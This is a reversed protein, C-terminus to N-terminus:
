VRERESSLSTINLLKEDQIDFSVCSIQRITEHIEETGGIGLFTVKIVGHCSGEFSM